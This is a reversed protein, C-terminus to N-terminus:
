AGFGFYLACETEFFESREPVGCFLVRAVRSLTAHRRNM